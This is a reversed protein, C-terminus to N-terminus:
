QEGAEKVVMESFVYGYGRATLLYKPAAPSDEIKSRIRKVHSIVSRDYGVVRYGHLHENIQDRTFPRGPSQALFVLLDFERASLQTVAGNKLIKRSTLDITLGDFELLQPAEGLKVAEVRRLASRIRAKLEQERFPKTVYDDAGEELLRVTTAEDRLGTIVIIPVWENAARAIRCIRSGDCRPLMLDLLILDYAGTKAQEIGELGDEVAVVELDFDAVIELLSELIEPDDEVVLVRNSKM